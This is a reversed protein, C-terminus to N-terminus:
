ANSRKVYISLLKVLAFSGWVFELIIFPLNNLEFAYYTLIYAGFINLMQYTLSDTAIVKLQNLLFGGLLLTLGIFGIIDIMNM